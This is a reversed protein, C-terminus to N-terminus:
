ESGNDFELPTYRCYWGGFRLQIRYLLLPLSSGGNHRQAAVSYFHRAVVLKRKVGRRGLVLM